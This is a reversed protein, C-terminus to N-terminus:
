VEKEVCEFQELYQMATEEDEEIAIEVAKKAAELLENSKARLEFSKQIKNAIMEQVDLKVVPLLIKKFSDDSTAAMIAGTSHKRMLEQMFWSKFLLLLTESNIEDSKIVHFGTSVLAGNFTETIIACKQLSGELSSVIVDGTHVEKRARSPLNIGIDITCDTVNGYNDIDSLEIYKYEKKDEIKIVRNGESIINNVTFYESKKDEQLFKIKNEIDDYKPQFYEADLRGANMFQSLSKTTTNQQSPVFNDMNLAKLLIQEAEKYLKNANFVKQRSREYLLKINNGISESIAPMDVDLINKLTLHPQGTQSASRWLVAQGYKSSLYAWLIYIVNEEVNSTHVTVIDRSTAYEKYEYGVLGVKALTNGSKAIVIDMPKVIDITNSNNLLFDQPLFATNETINVLSKQIENVRIFPIGNGNFDYIDTVSPYFASCNVEITMSSIKKSIKSEIQLLMNIYYPRYFEADFRYQIKDINSLMIESCELGNM